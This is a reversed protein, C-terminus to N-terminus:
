QSQTIPVQNRGTGAKDRGWRLIPLSFFRYVLASLVLSGIASILVILAYRSIDGGSAGGFAQRTWKFVPQHFLYWEYSIIGFWRLWAPSLLRTIAYQPNAIYLITLGSAIKALIEIQHHTLGPTFSPFNKHLSSLILTAFLLLMGANALRASTQPLRKAIELGGILVGIAFSNLGTPYRINIFPHLCDTAHGSLHIRRVM